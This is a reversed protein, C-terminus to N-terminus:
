LAPPELGESRAGTLSATLGFVGLWVFVALGARARGGATRSLRRLLGLVARAVYTGCV